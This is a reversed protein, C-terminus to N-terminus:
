AYLKTLMFLSVLSLCFILTPLIVRSYTNLPQPGEQQLIGNGYLFASM